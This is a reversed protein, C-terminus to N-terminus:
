YIRFADKREFYALSVLWFSYLAIRVLNYVGFSSGRDSVASSILNLVMTGCYIVIIRGATPLKIGSFGLSEAASFAAITLLSIGQSRLLPSLSLGPFSTTISPLVIYALGESITAILFSQLIITRYKSPKDDSSSQEGADEQLTGHASEKEVEHDLAKPLDNEDETDPETINM